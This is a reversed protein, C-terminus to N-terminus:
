GGDDDDDGVFDDDSDNDDDFDVGQSKALRVAAAIAEASFFGAFDAGGGTRGSNFGNNNENSHDEAVGGDPCFECMKLNRKSYQNLNFHQNTNLLTSATSTDKQPPLYYTINATM